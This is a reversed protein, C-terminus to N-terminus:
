ARLASKDTGQYLAKVQRGIADAHAAVAENSLLKPM